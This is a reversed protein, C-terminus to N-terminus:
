EGGFQGRWWYCEPSCRWRFPQNNGWCRRGNARGSFCKTRIWVVCRCRVGASADAGEIVIANSFTGTPVYFGYGAKKKEKDVDTYDFLANDVLGHNADPASLRYETRGAPLPAGSAPMQALQTPPQEALKAQMSMLQSKLDENENSLDGLKNTLNTLKDRVDKLTNESDQQQMQADVLVNEDVSSNFTNTVVGTLDPEPEPTDHELQTKEESSDSSSAQKNVFWLGAILVAIFTVIIILLKRQKKLIAKNINM